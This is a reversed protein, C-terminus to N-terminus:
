FVQNYSGFLEECSVQCDSIVPILSWGQPLTLTKNEELSGLFQLTANNSLKIKYGNHTNWNGITNINQEPWYVNTMDQLIILNSGLPELLDNVQTQAPSLYSSIGSWGQPIQMLQTTYGGTVDIKFDDIYMGDKNVMIDSKFRFRIFVNSKNLYNNLSYSKEIWTNQVGTFTALSTWNTGNTSIELYM